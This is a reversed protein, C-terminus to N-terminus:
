SYLEGLIRIGFEAGEADCSFIVYDDTFRTFDIGNGLLTSDVDILVAEGLVRSAAPGVPIGYSAGDSFRFLMKELVRIQDYKAPGCAAQLANVLRHRYVRPYFDAIDTTGIYLGPEISLRNETSRKFDSYGPSSAYL